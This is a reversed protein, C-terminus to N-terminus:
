RREAEEIWFGREGGTAIYVITAVMVFLVVVLLLFLFMPIDPQKYGPLFHPLVYYILLNTVISFILSTFVYAKFTPYRERYVYLKGEASPPPMRRAKESLKKISRYILAVVLLFGVAPFVIRGSIPSYTDFVSVAYDYLHLLPLLAQTINLQPVTITIGTPQPVQVVGGPAPMYQTVTQIRQERVKGSFDFVFDGGAIPLKLIYNAEDVEWVDQILETDEHLVTRPTFGIYGYYLYTHGPVDPSSSFIYLTQFDASWIAQYLQASSNFYIEFTTRDLSGYIWPVTVTFNEDVETPYFTKPSFSKLRRTVWIGRWKVSLYEHTVNYYTM